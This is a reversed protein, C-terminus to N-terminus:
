KGGSAAASIGSPATAVTQLFLEQTVFRHNNAYSMGNDSVSAHTGNSASPTKDPGIGNTGNVSSLSRAPNQKEGTAVQCFFYVIGNILTFVLLGGGDTPFIM